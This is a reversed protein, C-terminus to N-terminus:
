HRGKAQQDKQRMKYARTNERKCIKCVRVNTKAPYVNERLFEHGRKCHTKAMNVASLTAGRALNERHDVAELHDPRVCLTSRCGNARVHDIELGDPIPGFHIEYSVRHVYRTRGSYRITGYNGSPVGKWLWCGETKDVNAWFRPLLPWPKGSM